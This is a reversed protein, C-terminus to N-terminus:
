AENLLGLNDKDQEQLLSILEDEKAPFVDHYILKLMKNRFDVTEYAQGTFNRVLEPVDVLGNENRIQHFL